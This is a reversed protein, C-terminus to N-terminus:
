FPRGKGSLFDGIALPNIGISFFNVEAQLNRGYGVWLLDKLMTATGSIGLEFDRGEEFDLLTFSLGLGPNLFDNWFNCNRLGLHGVFGLAVAPEFNQNGFEGDQPDVFFLAGRPEVYFGTVRLRFRQHASALVVEEGTGNQAVVRASIVLLDGPHREGATLLALSTDLSNEPAVARGIAGTQGAQAAIRGTIGLVARVEEIRKMAQRMEPRAELAAATQRLTHITEDAVLDPFAALTAELGAALNQLNQPLLLLNTLIADIQRQADGLLRGFDVSGDSIGTGSVQILTEILELM